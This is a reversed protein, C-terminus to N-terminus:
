IHKGNENIKNQRCEFDFRFKKKSKKNVKLHHIYCLHDQSLYKHCTLYEFDYYKHKPIGALSYIKRGIVYYRITDSVSKKKELHPLSHIFCVSKLVIGCIVCKRIYTSYAVCSLFKLCKKCVSQRADICQYILLSRSPIGRLLIQVRRIRNFQKRCRLAWRLFVLGHIKLVREISRRIPYRSGKFRCIEYNQLQPSIYRSYIFLKWDKASWISISELKGAYSFRKKNKPRNVIVCVYTCNVIKKM